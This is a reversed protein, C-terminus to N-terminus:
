EELFRGNEIGMEGLQNLEEESNGGVFGVRTLESSHGEVEEHTGDHIFLRTEQFQLEDRGHDMSHQRNPGLRFFVFIVIRGDLNSELDQIRKSGIHRRLVDKGDNGFHQDRVSM